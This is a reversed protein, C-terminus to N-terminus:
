NGLREKVWSGKAKITGGDGRELVVPYKGYEDYGVIRYSHKKDRFSRGFDEPALGISVADREFLQKVRAQHILTEVKVSIILSTKYYTIQGIHCIFGHSHRLSALAEEVARRAEDVNEKNFVTISM